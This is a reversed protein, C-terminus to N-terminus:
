YKIIYNGVVYPQLNNHAAGSGANGVAGTLATASAGGTATSTGRGLSGAAFTATTGSNIFFSGSGPGHTHQPAALTDPHDHVALEAETLTHTKAGGTEGLTDFETQGTDLGVFVRGQYNPLNFTSSNDGVGYRTGIKAFLEAYTARSKEEGRCFFYGPPEEDEPWMLVTGVPVIGGGGKSFHRKLWDVDQVLKRVTDTLSTM